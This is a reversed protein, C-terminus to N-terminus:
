TKLTPIVATVAIEVVPAKAMAKAKVLLILPIVKAIVKKKKKKKKKPREHSRSSRFIEGTTLKPM